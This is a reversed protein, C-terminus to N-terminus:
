DEFSKQEQQEVFSAAVKLYAAKTPTVKFEPFANRFAHDDVIFDADTQYRTEILEKLISSFLGLVRHMRKTLPRIQYTKDFLRNFILLIESPTMPDLVPLHFVEGQHMDSEGLCVMARAVDPVYSFTQIALPDGLYDPDKGNLMNELFSHYLLGTKFVPSVFNASRGVVLDIEGRKQADFLTELIQKRIKGKQSAPYAPHDERVPNQLPAPGYLYTNDLFVIKVGKGKVTDILRDIFQPWKREWVKTKYPFSSCVYVTTAKDLAKQIDELHEMDAQMFDKDDVPQRAVIRVPRKRERLAKVVYYGVNRTGGLIVNLENTM